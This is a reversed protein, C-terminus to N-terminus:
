LIGGSILNKRDRQVPEAFLFGDTAGDYVQAMDVLTL